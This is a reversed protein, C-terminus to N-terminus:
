RAQKGLLYRDLLFKMSRSWTEDTNGRVDVSKLFTMKDTAVDAMYLNINLILNSVKQVTVWAVQEAGLQNGAAVECGGCEGLPQSSALQAKVEPTVPVITFKGSAAMRSTVQKELMALRNREADTTPELGENDNIFRVGLFAVSPPHGAPVPEAAAVPSATLAALLLVFAQAGIAAYKAAGKARHNTM